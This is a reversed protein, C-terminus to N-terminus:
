TPVPRRGQESALQCGGAGRRGTRERCPKGADRHGTRRLPDGIAVAVSVPEFRAVVSVRDNVDRDDIWTLSCSTVAAPSAAVDSWRYFASKGFNKTTMTVSVDFFTQANLGQASM